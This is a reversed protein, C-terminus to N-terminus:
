ERHKEAMSELGSYLDWIDRAIKSGTSRRIRRMTSHLLSEYLDHDRSLAEVPYGFKCLDSADYKTSEQIIKRFKCGLGDPFDQERLPMLHDTLANELRSRVDGKGVCLTEIALTVRELVDRAKERDGKTAVCNFGM